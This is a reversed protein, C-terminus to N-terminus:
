AIPPNFPIKTDETSEHVFKVAAYLASVVFVAVAQEMNLGIGKLSEPALQEAGNTGFTTILAGTGAHIANRWLGKLYQRIDTYRKM